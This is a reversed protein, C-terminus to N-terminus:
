VSNEGKQNDKDKNKIEKLILPGNLIFVTSQIYGRIGLHGEEGDSPSHM